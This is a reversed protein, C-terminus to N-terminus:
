FTLEKLYTKKLEKKHAKINIRSHSKFKYVKKILLNEM